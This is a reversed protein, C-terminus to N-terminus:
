ARRLHPHRGGWNGSSKDSEIELGCDAIRLGTLTKLKEGYLSAM